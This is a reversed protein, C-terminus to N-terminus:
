RRFVKDALRDIQEDDLLMRLALDGAALVVVFACLIGLVKLFALTQEPTM